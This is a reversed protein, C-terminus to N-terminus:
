EAMNWCDGHREYVCSKMTHKAAKKTNERINGCRDSKDSRTGRGKEVCQRVNQPTEKTSLPLHHRTILLSINNANHFHSRFIVSMNALIQVLVYGTSM